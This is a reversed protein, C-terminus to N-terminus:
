PKKHSYLPSFDWSEPHYSFPHIVKSNRSSALFAIEKSLQLCFLVPSLSRAPTLSAVHPCDWKSVCHHLPVAVAASHPLRVNGSAPSWDFCFKVSACFFFFFISSRGVYVGGEIGGGEWGRKWLWDAEPVCVPTSTLFQMCGQTNLTVPVHVSSESWSWSLNSSASQDHNDTPNARWETTNKKTKSVVFYWIRLFFFFFPPFIFILGQNINIHQHAVIVWHSLAM